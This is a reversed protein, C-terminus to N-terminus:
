KKENNAADMLAQVEAQMQKAVKLANEPNSKMNPDVVKPTGIRIQIKKGLKTQFLNSKPPFADVAGILAVPLYPVQLEMCFRVPFRHFEGLRGDETAHSEPFMGVMQGDKLFEIIKAAAEMNDMNEKMVILGFAPVLSKIVPINVNKAKVFWKIPKSIGLNLFFPDYETQHNMIIVMPGKDPFNEKGIVEFNFMLKWPIQVSMSSLWFFLSDLPALIKMENMKERIKEIGEDIKLSDFINDKKKDEKSESGGKNLNDNSM